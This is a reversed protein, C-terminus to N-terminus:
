VWLSESGKPGLEILGIGLGWVADDTRSLLEFTHVHPSVQSEHRLLTHPTLKWCCLSLTLRM